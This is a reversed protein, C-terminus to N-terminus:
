VAFLGPVEAISDVVFDPPPEVGDPSATVGTLALITQWGEAAGLALDTEPRDGIVAVRRGALRERLLERMAPHPKGAVEPTVGTATEVAAVLSGAGPWLGEPMPYTPDTNTAIFRAGRNVAMVAGTLSQYSLSPDLGVIVAGAEHWDEVLPIGARELAPRAGAAGFLLTPPAEAVLLHAAAEASTVVDQESADFGTLRGIKVAAEARSKASNNTVFVLDIGTGALIALARGAGPVVVEGRYLVGDLDCVITDPRNNM